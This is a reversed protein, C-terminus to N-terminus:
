QRKFVPVYQSLSPHKTDGLTVPRTTPHVHTRSTARRMLAAPPLPALTFVTGYVRACSVCVVTRRRQSVCVPDRELSKLNLIKGM